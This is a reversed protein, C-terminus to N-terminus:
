GGAADRLAVRLTRTGGRGGEGGKAPGSSGAAWAAGLDALLQRGGPTLEGRRSTPTFLPAGIRRELKRITQSVQATSVRLREATRGFHLEEALVLFTELERSEIM